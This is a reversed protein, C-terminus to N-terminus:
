SKGEPHNQWHGTLATHALINDDPPNLCNFPEFIRLNKPKHKPITSRTTWAPVPVSGKPSPAAVHGLAQTLTSSIKASVQDLDFPWTIHQPKAKGDFTLTSDINFRVCEGSPLMLSGTSRHAQCATHLIRERGDKSRSQRTANEPEPCTKVADEVLEEWWSALRDLVPWLAYTATPNAQPIHTNLGFLTATWGNDGSITRPIRGLLPQQLDKARPIDRHRLLIDLRDYREQIQPLMESPDPFQPMKHPTKAATTM